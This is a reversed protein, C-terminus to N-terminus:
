RKTAPAGRGGARGVATQILGGGIVAAEVGFGAGASPSSSLPANLAGCLWTASDPPGSRRV